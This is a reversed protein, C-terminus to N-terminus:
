EYGYLNSMNYCFLKGPPNNLHTPSTDNNSAVDKQVHIKEEFESIMEM